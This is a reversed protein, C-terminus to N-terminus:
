NDIMESACYPCEDVVARCEGDLHAQLLAEDMVQHFCRVWASKPEEAKKQM